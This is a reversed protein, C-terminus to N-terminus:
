TQWKKTCVALIGDWGGGWWPLAVILDHRGKRQGGCIGSRGLVYLLSSRRVMCLVGGSNADVGLGRRFAM